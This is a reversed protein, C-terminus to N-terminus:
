LNRNGCKPCILITAPLNENCNWCLKGVNYENGPLQRVKKITKQSEGLNDILYTAYIILIPIYGLLFFGNFDCLYNYFCHIIVPLSISKVLFSNSGQFAYLGFYYGMIIGCCGHLPVASLARVSAIHLSSTDLDSYYVYEFNELTAFGLSLLTAYVIGDMPEDFEARNKLFLYLTIFKLPEETLGAIFSLNDSNEKSSIFINNLYGAPIIILFGLLFAYIILNLPEKFRDSFIVFSAILISPFITLCATLIM